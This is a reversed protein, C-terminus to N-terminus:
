GRDNSANVEMMLSRGAAFLFKKLSLVKINYTSKLNELETNVGDSRYEAIDLAYRMRRDAVGPSCNFKDALSAEIDSMSVFRHSNLDDVVMEVAEGILEGGFTLMPVKLKALFDYTRQQM